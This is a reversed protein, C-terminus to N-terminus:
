GSSSEQTKEEKKGLTPGFASVAESGSNDPGLAGPLLLWCSRLNQQISCRPTQTNAAGDLAKCLNRKRRGWVRLATGLSTREGLSNQPESHLCVRCLVPTVCGPSPCGLIFPTDADGTQQSAPSCRQTVGALQRFGVRPQM